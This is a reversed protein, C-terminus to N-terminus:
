SGSAVGLQHLANSAASRVKVSHDGERLKQLAPVLREDGLHEAALCAQILFTEVAGAVANARSDDDFGALGRDLGAGPGYSAPDLMSLLFPVVEADGRHARLLVANRAVLPDADLSAEVLLADVQAAAPGERVNALAGLALLLVDDASREFHAVLAPVAAPDAMSGLASLAAMRLEPEPDDLAEVAYQTLSPDRKWALVSLLTARLDGGAEIRDGLDRYREYLAALEAAPVDDLDLQGRNLGDALAHLAQWRGHPGAAQFEDLVQRADDPGAGIVARLVLYVATLTAVLIAPFVFFQPLAELFSGPVHQPPEEDLEPGDGRPAAQPPAPVDDSSRFPNAPADVNPANRPTPVSVGAIRPLRAPAQSPRLLASM